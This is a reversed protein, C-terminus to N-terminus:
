RLRRKFWDLWREYILKSDLGGVERKVEDCILHFMENAEVSWDAELIEPRNLKLSFDVMTEKIKARLLINEWVLDWAGHWERVKKAIENLVWSEGEVLVDTPKLRDDKASYQMLPVFGGETEPDEKWHKRVEVVEVVRRFRHLGDPSRLMSSIVILDCAKFSTPPVGLDHVIRDYVGYPSEAHVTGAVVNALAGIRMAEFLALAEEGRIEGIILVSEGLRLGTRLAEAPPLEAEVRTIISRTKMREINYGLKRMPDVALELTNHAVINECIFNEQNPVSIDYVYNEGEFVEISEIKDWFIDSYVLNKIVEYIESDNSNPADALLEMLKQRGINCGRKIYDHKNFTPLVGAIKEKLSLSLPIIDTVDRTKRNCMKMLEQMRNEQLFGIQSYFERLMRVGSIRLSFTKDKENMKNIRSMIGFFLLLTQIDKILELSSLNIAVEYKSLYGDGSFIGSLLYAIQEKSLNYVWAPIRKTYANGKLELIESMIQKLIRSNLMLSVGDSHMKVSIGFKKGVREVVSRANEDTVSIIVSSKDYSGDALWLGVFNLFDKDLEIKIPLIKSRGKGKIKLENSDIKCGSKLIELLVSAPLTANRQWHGVITPYTRGKHVPYNLRKSVEKVLKKNERILKGLAEGIVYTGNLKDLYNLLNISKIGENNIPLKRPVAIYDGVKLNSVKVEKLKGDDSLSFLSHDGTVKIKRGTRTRIEYIPKNTKHRIFSKVKSFIVNGSKNVSFVEINEPNFDLVERGNFLKCGYKRILEDVLKGIQSKEITGNRKIIIECDGTVSDEIVIIRYKRLIELM